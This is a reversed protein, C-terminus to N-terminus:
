GFSTKWRKRYLGPAQPRHPYHYYIEEVPLCQCWIKLVSSDPFRSAPADLPPTPEQHRQRDMKLEEEIHEFM